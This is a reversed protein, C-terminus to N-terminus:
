TLISVINGKREPTKQEVETQIKILSQYTGCNRFNGEGFCLNEDYKRTADECNRQLYPCTSNKSTM